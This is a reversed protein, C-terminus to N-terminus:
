ILFVNLPFNWLRSTGRPGWDGPRTSPPAGVRRRAGHLVIQEELVWCAHAQCVLAARPVSARGIQNWHERRGWDALPHLVFCFGSSMPFSGVALPQALSLDSVRHECSFTYKVILIRKFLMLIGLSCIIRSTRKFIYRFQGAFYLSM